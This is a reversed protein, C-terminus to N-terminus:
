LYRRIEAMIDQGNVICVYNLKDLEFLTEGNIEIKYYLLSLECETDSKAGKELKGQAFNKSYGRAVIRLGRVISTGSDIVGQQASRITIEPPELTNVLALAETSLHQFPIKMVLNEYQGAAPLDISGLVGAGDITETKNELDPLEIGSATSVTRAGRVYMTYDDTLVPRYGLSM